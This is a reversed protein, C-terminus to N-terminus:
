AYCLPRTLQGFPRLLASISSPSPGLAAGSFPALLSDWNLLCIRDRQNQPERATMRTKKMTMILKFSSMCHNQSSSYAVIVTGKAGNMRLGMLNKLYEKLSIESVQKPCCRHPGFYCIQSHDPHHARVNLAGQIGCPLNPHCLM